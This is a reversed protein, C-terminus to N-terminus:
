RALKKIIDLIDQDTINKHETVPAPNRKRRKEPRVGTMKKPRSGTVKTTPRSVEVLSATPKTSKRRKKVVAEATVSLRKEFSGQLTLPRFYKDDVIVELSMNYVGEKMVNKLPPVVVSIENDDEKVADFVM